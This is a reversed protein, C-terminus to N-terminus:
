KEDKGCRGLRHIRRINVIAPVVTYSLLNRFTDTEKAGSRSGFRDGSLFLGSIM